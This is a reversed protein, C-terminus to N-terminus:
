GSATASTRAIASDLRDPEDINVMIKVPEGGATVAPRPLLAEM